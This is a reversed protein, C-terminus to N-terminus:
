PLLHPQPTEGAQQKDAGSRLVGVPEEGAKMDDVALPEDPVPVESM